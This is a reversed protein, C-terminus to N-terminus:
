LGNQRYTPTAHNVIRDTTSTTTTTTAIAASNCNLGKWSKQSELASCRRVRGSCMDTGRSIVFEASHSPGMYQWDFQVKWNAQIASVTKHYGHDSSYM